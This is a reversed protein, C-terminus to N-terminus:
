MDCSIIDFDDNILLIQGDGPPKFPDLFRDIITTFSLRGLIVGTIDENQSLATSEVVSGYIPIAIRFGLEDRALNELSVFYTDTESISSEGQVEKYYSRWSNDVGEAQKDM